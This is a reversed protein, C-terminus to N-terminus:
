RCEINSTPPVPRIARVATRGESPCITCRPGFAAESMEGSAIKFERHRVKGRGMAHGDIPVKYPPDTVVM